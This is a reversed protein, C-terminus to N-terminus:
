RVQWRSTLTDLNDLFTYDGHTTYTVSEDCRFGMAAPIYNELIWFDGRQSVFPVQPRTPCDRLDSFMKKELSDLPPDPADTAIPAAVLHETVGVSEQVERPPEQLHPDEEIQNNSIEKGIDAVNSIGNNNVSMEVAKFKSKDDGDGNENKNIKGDLLSDNVDPNGLDERQDESVLEGTRTDKSDYLLSLRKDLPKTEVILSGSSELIGELSRYHQSARNGVSVTPAPSIFSVCLYVVLLANMVISFRILILRTSAMGRIKLFKRGTLFFILSHILLYASM